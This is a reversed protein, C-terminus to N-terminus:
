EGPKVVEVWKGPKRSNITNDYMAECYVTPLYYRGVYAANLVIRFTM